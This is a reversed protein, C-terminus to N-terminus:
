IGWIGLLIFILFVSFIFEDWDTYGKYMQEEKYMNEAKKIEELDIAVGSSNIAYGEDILKSHLMDLMLLQMLEEWMEPMDKM